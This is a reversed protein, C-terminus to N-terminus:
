SKRLHAPIPAEQPHPSLELPTPVALIEPLPESGFPLLWKPRKDSPTDRFRLWIQFAACHQKGYEIKDAMDRLTKLKLELYGRETTKKGIRKMLHLNELNAGFSAPYLEAHLLKNRVDWCWAFYDIISEAVARVEPDKECEQFVIKIASLRQQENLSLYFLEILKQPVKLFKLHHQYLSFM